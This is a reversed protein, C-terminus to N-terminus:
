EDESANRAPPPWPRPGISKPASAREAIGALFTTLRFSVIGAHRPRQEREPSLCERTLQILEPDAGCSNLRTEADGLMGQAAQLLSQSAEPAVYPPKGTLIECLIAGLGFVDCREDLDTHGQAQEIAMYAPTGIIDGTSTSDTLRHPQVRQRTSMTDHDLDPAPMASAPSQAAAIEPEALVRALGWDMVQVEGFEGVMVNSPKLDRHIVGRSHAYAMTQCVHEFIKLLQTQERPPRRSSAPSPAPDEISALLDALTKGEILKMVFYPRGDNFRGMDYLPVIGPHQLQGVIWAEKFFRRIHDPDNIHKDLLIKVALDRDLERDHGRCVIGMGGRAIEHVLRYRESGRPPPPNVMEIADGFTETDRRAPQQGPQITQQFLTPPISDDFSPRWIESEPLTKAATPDSM